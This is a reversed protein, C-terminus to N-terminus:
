VLRNTKFLRAFKSAELRFSPSAFYIGVFELGEFDLANKERLFSYEFSLLGVLADLVM